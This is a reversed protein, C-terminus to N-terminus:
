ALLRQKLSLYEDGDATTNLNQQTLHDALAKRMTLYLMNEFGKSNIDVLKREDDKAKM